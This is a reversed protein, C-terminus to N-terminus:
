VYSGTRRCTTLNQREDPLDLTPANKRKQWRRGCSLNRHAHILGRSAKYSFTRFSYKGTEPTIVVRMCALESVCVCVCVCVWGLRIGDLLVLKNLHASQLLKKLMDRIGRMGVIHLWMTSSICNPRLLFGSQPSVVCSRALFFSLVPLQPWDIKLFRNYM